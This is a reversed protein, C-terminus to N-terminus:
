EDTTFSCGQNRLKHYFVQRRYFQLGQTRRKCHLVQGQASCESSSSKVLHCFAQIMSLRLPKFSHCLVQCQLHGFHSSIYWWWWWWWSYEAWPCTASQLSLFLPQLEARLYIKRRLILCGPQLKILSLYTRYSGTAKRVGSERKLMQVSRLLDSFIGPAGVHLHPSHIQSVVPNFISEM